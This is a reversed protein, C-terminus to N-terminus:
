GWEIKAKQAKSMNKKTINNDMNEQPTVWRLNNVKNNTKDTDLHDVFPKNESNPIFMTAVLRHVRYIKRKKNDNKDTYYLAKSIYGTDKSKSGYGIEEGYGNWKLSKIRGLNSVEYDFVVDDIIVRRWIEIGQRTLELVEEYSYNDQGNM